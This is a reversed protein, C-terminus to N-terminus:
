KCVAPLDGGMYTITGRYLYSGNVDILRADGMAQDCAEFLAREVSPYSEWCDYSISTGQKGCVVYSSGDLEYVSVDEWAGPGYVVARVIVIGESICEPPPVALGTGVSDALVPVESRAENDYISSSAAQGENPRAFGRAPRCEIGLAALEDPSYFGPAIVMDGNEGLTENGSEESSEDDEQANAANQARLADGRNNVPSGEQASGSDGGGTNAPADNDSEEDAPAGYAKLALCDGMNFPNNRDFTVQDNVHVTNFGGGNGSFRAEATRCAGDLASDFSDFGAWANQGGARNVTFGGEPVTGAYIWTSPHMAGEFIAIAGGALTCGDAVENNNNPACPDQAAAPTISVLGLLFAFVISGTVLRRYTLTRKRM